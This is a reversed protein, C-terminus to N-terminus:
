ATAHETRAHRLRTLDDQYYRVRQCLQAIVPHEPSVSEGRALFEHCKAGLAEQATRLRRETQAEDMRIRGQRALEEGRERLDGLGGLVTERVEDWLNKGAPPVTTTSM